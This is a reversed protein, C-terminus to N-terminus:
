IVSLRNVQSLSGGVSQWVHAFDALALLGNEVIAM